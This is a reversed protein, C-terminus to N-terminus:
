PGTLPLKYLTSLRGLRDRAAVLMGDTEYAVLRAGDPFADAPAAVTYWLGNTTVQALDEGIRLLNQTVAVAPLPGSVSEYLLAGGGALSRYLRLTYDDRAQRTVAAYYLQEGGDLWAQHWPVGIEYTWRPNLDPHARVFLYHAYSREGSPIEMVAGTATDYRLWADLEAEEGTYRIRSALLGGARTMELDLFGDVAYLVSQTYDAAIDYLFIEQMEDGGIGYALFRDNAAVQIGFEAECVVEEEGSRPDWIVLRSGSNLVWTGDPLARVWEWGSQAFGAPLPMAVLASGVLVIPDAASTGTGSVGPSAGPATPGTPRTGTGVPPTGTPISGNDTPPPPKRGCGLLGGGLLLGILVVAAWSRWVRRYGRKM